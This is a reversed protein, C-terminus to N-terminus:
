GTLTKDLCSNEQFYLVENSCESLMIIRTVKDHLFLQVSFYEARLIKDYSIDVHTFKQGM